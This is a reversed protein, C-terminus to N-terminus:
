RIVLYKKDIITHCNWCYFTKSQLLSNMLGHVTNPGDPVSWSWIFRARCEPCYRSYISFGGGDPYPVVHAGSALKKRRKQKGLVNNCVRCYVTKPKESYEPWVGINSCNSCATKIARAKSTNGQSDETFAPMDGFYPGLSIESELYNKGRPKKYQKKGPISVSAACFICTNGGRPKLKGCNECIDLEPYVLSFLRPNLPKLRRLTHKYPLGMPAKTLGKTGETLLEVRGFRRFYPRYAIEAGAMDDTWMQYANYGSVTALQATRMLLNFPFPSITASLNLAGDVTVIFLNVGEGIIEEKVSNRFEAWYYDLYTKKPM